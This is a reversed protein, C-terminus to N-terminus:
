QIELTGYQSEAVELAEQCFKRAWSSRKYHEWTKLLVPCDLLGSKLLDDQFCTHAVLYWAPLYTNIYALAASLSPPQLQQLTSQWKLAQQHGTLIAKFILKHLSAPITNEKRDESRIYRKSLRKDWDLYREHAKPGFFCTIWVRPMKSLIDQQARFWYELPIAHQHTHYYITLLLPTNKNRLIDRPKTPLGFAASKPKSNWYARLTLKALHVLRLAAINTAHLLRPSKLQHARKLERDLATCLRKHEQLASKWAENPNM